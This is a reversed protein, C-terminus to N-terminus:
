SDERALVIRLDVDGKPGFVKAARVRADESVERLHEASVSPDIAAEELPRRHSAVPTTWLSGAEQRADANM